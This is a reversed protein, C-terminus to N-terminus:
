FLEKMILDHIMPRFARIKENDRTPHIRNTLLIVVVDKELDMWVSTGTFGLHGVSNESFFRGSSSNKISPTDWGLAWTSGETREQRTFFTRVIEPNLHDQRVGLYHEKLLKVIEYVEEATGFLGAHGSYGGVAYANEDDVEGLIVKSRWPCEETPAFAHPPYQDQRNEDIFFTKQLSLPGYFHRNLFRPVPIGSAREIIWELIMFGLDSYLAQDGLAYALPEELIKSRLVGKRKELDHNVLELYFPKWDVFGASHCLLLRPTIARKDDSLPEPLLTSLPQDLDLKRQDVLKMLALTTALPKTLSALDFITDEEMPHTEPILSRYGTAERFVIEGGRAVLLVAGPFVGEGVGTELLDNIKTMGNKNM